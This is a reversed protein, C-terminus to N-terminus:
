RCTPLPQGPNPVPSAAPSSPLADDTAQKFSVPIVVETDTLNKGTRRRVRVKFTSSLNIAAAGFGLGPPDEKLVVCSDVHGDGILRCKLRVRAPTAPAPTSSSSPHAIAAQAVFANLPIFM